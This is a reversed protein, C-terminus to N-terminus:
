QFRGARGSPKTIQALMQNRWATHPGDPYASAHEHLLALAKAQEKALLYAAAKRLLHDDAELPADPVAPPRRPHAAAPTSGPRPREFLPLPPPAPPDAIEDPAPDPQLATPSPAAISARLPSVAIAPPTVPRATDGPFGAGLAAGLLAARMWTVGRLHALLLPPEPPPRPAEAPGDLLALIPALVLPRGDGGKALDRTRWQEALAELSERALRLRSRATNQNVGLERAVDPMPMEDLKHLVFVDRLKQPLQAIFEDLLATAERNMLRQEANPEDAAVPAFQEQPCLLERRHQARDRYHSAKNRAISLLWTVLKALRPDFTDRASWAALIVEEVVEKRDDPPVGARRLYAAVDKRHEQLATAFLEDEASTPKM